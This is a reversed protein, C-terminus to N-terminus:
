RQACTWEIQRVTSQAMRRAAAGAAECRERSTFEATTLAVGANAPGVHAFLILIWTTTNM